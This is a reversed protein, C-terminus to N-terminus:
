YEKIIYTKKDIIVIDGEREIIDDVTGTVCDYKNLDTVEKSKIPKMTRINAGLPVENRKSLPANEHLITGAFFNCISSYDPKTPPEHFDYWSRRICPQTLHSVHVTPSRYDGLVKKRQVEKFKEIVENAIDDKEALSM